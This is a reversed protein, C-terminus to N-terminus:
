CNENQRLSPMKGEFHVVFEMSPPVGREPLSAPIPMASRVSPM